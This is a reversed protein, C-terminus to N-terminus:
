KRPLRPRTKLLWLEGIQDDVVIIVLGPDVGLEREAGPEGCGNAGAILKPPLDPVVNGAHLGDRGCGRLGTGNRGVVHGEFM